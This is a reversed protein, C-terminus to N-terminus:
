HHDILRGQQCKHHDQPGRILIFTTEFGKWVSKFNSNWLNYRQCVLVLLQGWELTLPGLHHQWNTSRREVVGDEACQDARRLVSCCKNVACDLFPISSFKCKQFHVYPNTRRATTTVCPYHARRPGLNLKPTSKNLDDCMNEAKTDM